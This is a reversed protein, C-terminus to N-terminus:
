RKEGMADELHALFLDRFAPHEGLGKVVCHVRYGRGELVSRLSDEGEGAMDNNAHDGAVLMFPFLVADAYGKGEMMSLTDKFSPFGEVTTIYVDTMGSLWLKIQLQSYTANAYHETGHGMLVIAAREGAADAAEPVIASRIAETVLDYDEESTLLPSGVSLSDFSDAYEAATHAVDDYELGNMINTPQLVATRIGDSVLREMAETIYDVKIGDRQELKRIIMRSTFARRVDWGPYREAFLSEIAGITRERNENYSTGFSVTVIAKSKPTMRSTNSIYDLYM